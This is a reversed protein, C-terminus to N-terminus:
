GFITMVEAERPIPAVSKGGKEGGLKDGKSPTGSTMFIKMMTCDKLKHKVPYPHHPYSAALLKEFHDMPLRTQRKFDHESAAAFGKCSDDAEDDDHGNSAMM